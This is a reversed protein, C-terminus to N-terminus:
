SCLRVTQQHRGAALHLPVPAPHGFGRITRRTPWLDSRMGPAICMVLGPSTAPPSWGAKRRRRKWRRRRSRVAEAPDVDYILGIEPNATQADQLHRADASILLSEDPGSLLYSTHGPTHGPLSLAEIGPMGLVPGRPIPRLRGVCASALNAAIDFGGRRNEPQSARAAPDTFFVLDTEPVLVEARPFWAATGDFLGLAHEGRIHTLLVRDIQEPLIGGEQMEERANGLAAGWASGTGADILTIGEPGRLAFCNVDHGQQGL